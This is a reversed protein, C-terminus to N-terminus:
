GLSYDVLKPKEWRAPLHVKGLGSNPFFSVSTIQTQRRKDRRISPGAATWYLMWKMHSPFIIPRRVADPRHVRRNKAPEAIASRLIMTATSGDSRSDMTM